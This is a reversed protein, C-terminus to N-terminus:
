LVVQCCWVAFFMSFVMVTIGRYLTSLVVYVIAHLAKDTTPISMPLQNQADQSAM